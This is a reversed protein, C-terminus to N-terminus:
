NTRASKRVCNEIYTKLYTEVEAETYFLGARLAQATQLDIRDRYAKDGDYTATDVKWEKVAINRLLDPRAQAQCLMLVMTSRVPAPMAPTVTSTASRVAEKVEKVPEPESPTEPKPKPAEAPKTEVPKPKVAPAAHEAKASEPVVTTPVPQQKTPTCAALFLVLVVPIIRM